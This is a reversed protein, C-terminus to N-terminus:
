ELGGITSGPSSRYLNLSTESMSHPLKTDQSIKKHHFFNWFSSGSKSLSDPAKPNPPERSERQSQTKMKDMSVEVGDSEKTKASGAPCQPPRGLGKALARLGLVVSFLVGSAIALVGMVPTDHYHGDSDAEQSFTMAFNSFNNGKSLGSAFSRFVEFWEQFFTQPSPDEKLGDKLSTAFTEANLIDTDVNTEIRRKMEMIQTFPHEKQSEEKRRQMNQYHANLTYAAMAIMLVLGSVIIVALLAPPFTSATILSLSSATFLISTLVGYAFLGYKMGLLGAAVYNYTIQDQLLQHEKEFNEILCCVERKLRRIEELDENKISKRTQLELLKTYTLELEKTTLALKCRTQTVELRLQYDYEEYIRSIVCALTYLAGIISLALLLPPSLASLSVVGIYLYLGDLFGGTAVALYAYVRNDMDQYEIRALYSKRDLPTLSSLHQIQLLLEKNMDMQMKRREFMSRIWLRNAAAFVGLVLGVPIVMYKLDMGSLLSLVQVTSRWGKYANKLGKMLDRFYPWASAIFKKVSDKKEKDYVSALFSFSVLFIAEAAVAAIGEPSTLVKHIFDPDTKSIFVEIFYKFMSYSSSLSDMVAYAHYIYRDKDLKQALLRSQADIRGAIALLFVLDESKLSSDEEGKITM